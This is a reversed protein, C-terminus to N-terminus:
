ILLDKNQHINGIVEFENLWLSTEENGRCGNETWVTPLDLLSIMTLDYAMTIHFSGAYFEVPSYSGNIYFDEESSKLIDGEYVEVGNRDKLGTFQMPILGHGSMIAFNIYDRKKFYIMEQELRDWARFKIERQKM